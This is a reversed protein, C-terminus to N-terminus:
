DEDCGRSDPVKILDVTYRPFQPVALATMEGEGLCVARFSCLQSQFGPLSLSVDSVSVCVCARTGPQRSAEGWGRVGLRLCVRFRPSGRQARVDGDGPPM